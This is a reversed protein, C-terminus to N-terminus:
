PTFCIRAVDALHKGDDNVGPQKKQRASKDLIHLRLQYNQLYISLSRRGASSVTSTTGAATRFRKVDQGAAAAAEVSLGRKVTGGSTGEGGASVDAESEPQWSIVSNDCEDLEHTM